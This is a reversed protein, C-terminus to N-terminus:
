ISDSLAARRALAPCGSGAAGGAGAGTGDAEVTM